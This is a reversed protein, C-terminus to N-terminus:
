KQKMHMTFFVPNGNARDYAKQAIPFAAHYGNQATILNNNEAYNEQRNSFYMHHMFTMKDCIFSCVTDFDYDEKGKTDGTIIKPNDGYKLFEDNRLEAITRITNLMQNIANRGKQTRGDTLMLDALKAGFYGYKKAYTEMTDQHKRSRQILDAIETLKKPELDEILMCEKADEESISYPAIVSGSFSKPPKIYAYSMTDDDLANMITQYYTDFTSEDVARSKDTWSIKLIQKKYKKSFDIASIEETFYTQNKDKPIISGLKEKTQDDLDLNSIDIM